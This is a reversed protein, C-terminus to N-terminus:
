AIRLCYTEIHHKCALLATQLKLTYPIIEAKTRVERGRWRKMQAMFKDRLTQYSYKHSAM